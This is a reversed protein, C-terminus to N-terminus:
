YHSKTRRNLVLLAKSSVSLILSHFSPGYVLKILASGSMDSLHGTRTDTNIETVYVGYGYLSFLAAFGKLITELLLCRLGAKDSSVPKNQILQCLSRNFVLHACSLTFSVCSTRLVAQNGTVM